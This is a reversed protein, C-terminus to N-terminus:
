IRPPMALCQQYRGAGTPRHKAQLPEPFVGFPLFFPLLQGALSATLQQGLLTSSMKPCSEAARPLWRLEHGDPTQSVGQVPQGSGSHGTGRRKRLFLGEREVGKNKGVAQAQESSGQWPDAATLPEPPM